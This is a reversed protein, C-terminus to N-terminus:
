QAEGLAIVCLWWLYILTRWYGMWEAENLQNYDKKLWASDKVKVDYIELVIAMSVIDQMVDINEM